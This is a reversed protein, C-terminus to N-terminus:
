KWMGQLSEEMSVFTMDYDSVLTELHSGLTRVAQRDVAKSGPQTLIEYPHFVWVFVGKDMGKREFESIWHEM